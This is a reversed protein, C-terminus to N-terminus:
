KPINMKSLEKQRYLGVSLSCSLIGSPLKKNTNVGFSAIFNVGFSETINDNKKIMWTYQLTISFSLYFISIYEADIKRGINEDILTPMSM